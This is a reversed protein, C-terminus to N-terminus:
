PMFRFSRTANRCGNDNCAEIKWYVVDGRAFPLDTRPTWQTAPADISAKLTASISCDAGPSVNICLNYPKTIREVPDWDFTPRKNTVSAGTLPAVLLPTAPMIYGCSLGFSDIYLGARGQIGRAPKADGCTYPGFKVGGWSGLSGTEQSTGQTRASPGLKKCSLILYNVYLGGRGEFSKVAFGSPCEALAHTSPALNGGVLGIWKFDGTSGDSLNVTRCKVSIQDIWQGSQVSIGVLVQSETCRLNYSTGGTGGGTPTNQARLAPGAGSVGLLSAAWVARVWILARM